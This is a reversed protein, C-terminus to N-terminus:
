SRSAALAIIEPLYDLPNCSVVCVAAEAANEIDQVTMDDLTVGDDNLIVKPILFLPQPEGGTPPLPYVSESLCDESQSFTWRVNETAASSARDSCGADGRPTEM